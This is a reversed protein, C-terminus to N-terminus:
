GGGLIFTRRANGAVFDCGSDSELGLLRARERQSIANYGGGPVHSRGYELSRAHVSASRVFVSEGPAGEVTETFTVGRMILKYSFRLPTTPLLGEGVKLLAHYCTLERGVARSQDAKMAEFTAKDIYPMRFEYRPATGDRSDRVPPAIHRNVGDGDITGLWEHGGATLVGEGDWLRVPAGEFDYLFCRRVMARIDYADSAQGTLALLEDEFTTM